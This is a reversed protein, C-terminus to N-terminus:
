SWSSFPSATATGAAMWSRSVPLGPSFFFCSTFPCTNCTEASMPESVNVNMLFCGTPCVHRSAAGPARRHSTATSVVPM